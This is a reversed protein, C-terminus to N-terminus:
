RRVTISGLPLMDNPQPQGDLAVPARGGDEPRYLGAMLRYTGAPLDAPLALSHEDTLVEGPRWGRTPRTWGVPVGDTQARLGGQEDLLHIFVKYDAEPQDIVQWVLSVGLAEGARATEAALNYGLVRAPGISAALNHQVPPPATVLPWDAVDVAGVAVAQRPVPLRGSWGTVPQEGEFLRAVLRYEGGTGDEPIELAMDTRVLDGPQWTEASLGAPALAMEIPALAEGGPKELWVEVRTDAAPAQRVRWYLAGKWVGGPHVAEPPADYAVLELGGFHASSAVRHAAEPLEVAHDPRQLHVSPGALWGEADAGRRPSLPRGGPPETLRWRLTYEGVPLGPPLDPELDQAVLTDLPWDKMPARAYFGQEGQWWVRGESDVLRLELRPDHAQPRDLSWYLTLRLPDTVTPRAGRWRYGKLRIGSEWAQDLPQADPPLQSAVPLGARYRTISLPLWLVRFSAAFQGLFEDDMWRTLLTRSFGDRPRPDTVFWVREHTQLLRGMSVRAAEEDGMGYAPVAVVPAEGTYYHNFTFGILADHLVVVDGADVRQSLYHAAARVDDRAIQIDFTQAYLRQAQQAVLAVLVAALALRWRGSVGSVACALLLLFPPLGFLAHRPGNYIPSIQSVALFLALPIVLYGLTLAVASRHARSRWWLGAGLAALAIFPLLWTWPLAVAKLMGYSYSTLAQQAIDLAPMEVFHFQPGAGLLSAGILVAPTAVLGVVLLAVLWRRDRARRLLWVLLALGEFAVIFLAFLHTYVMLAVVGLWLAARLWSRHHARFISWLLWISVLSLALFLSYNRVEQSYFVHIPSLALLLAAVLGTWPSFLARGVVFMLPVSVVGFAVSAYRLAFDAEGAVARLGALALFYLPPSTDRTVQDGVVITNALIATLGQQARYLSLGEDSWLSQGDLRFVRVLLALATVALMPWLWHLAAGQSAVPAARAETRNEMAPRVLTVSM